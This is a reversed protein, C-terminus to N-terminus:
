RHAERTREILEPCAPALLQEHRPCKTKATHVTKKSSKTEIPIDIAALLL